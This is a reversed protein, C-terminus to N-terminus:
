HLDPDLDLDLDLVLDLIRIVLFLFSNVASNKKIKQIFFQMESIGLVGYLVDLSCSFGKGRM